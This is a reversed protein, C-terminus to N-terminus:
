WYKFKKMLQKERDSLDKEGDGLMKIATDCYKRILEMGRPELSASQDTGWMARDLTIHKEIFKAGFAVAIIPPIVGTNHCSYGIKGEYRDKLTKIINLNMSDDPAPYLSVCHNIIYPCDYKKFIDIANDIDKLNGLGTSIFTTKKESAIEELLPINTIMPSAVKNYNLDFQRLFRQSEKDWSSAFWEISKDKCYDDIFEYDKKDLELKKKYELYSIEGWPTNRTKNKKYEPVCINPNRKQFKVADWNYKVANDILKRIIERDGNHNIGIEGILMIENNESEM